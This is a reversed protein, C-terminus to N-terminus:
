SWVPSLGMSTKVKILGVEHPYINPTSLRILRNEEIGNVGIRQNKLPGKFLHSNAMLTQMEVKEFTEYDRHAM